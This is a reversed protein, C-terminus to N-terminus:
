GGVGEPLPEDYTATAVILPHDTVNGAGVRAYDSFTLNPTAFIWDIGSGSPPSCPSASGGNAAVMGGATVQCFAESKENFDGMLVVPRGSARLENVLDVQISTARTRHVQNNGRGAVSAPNHLSIFYVERGSDRHRLLVWPMPAPNGHFYPINRTGSELLEWTDLRWAVADRARSDAVHYAWAGGTERSFAGKQVQEFEQLAVVDVDRSRLLGVAGNMRASGSALGPKNGGASTHSDGLVNLTATRFVAPPATRAQKALREALKALATERKRNAKELAKDAATQTDETADTPKPEEGPTPSTSPTATSPLTPAEPALPEASDRPDGDFPAGWALAAVGTGLVVVAALAAVVVSWGRQPRWRSLASVFGEPLRLRHTTRHRTM